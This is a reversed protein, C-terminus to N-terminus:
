SVMFAALGGMIIIFFVLAMIIDFNNIITKTTEGHAFTAPYIVKFSAYNGATRQLEVTVNQDDLVVTTNEGENLDFVENDGSKRDLINGEANNQSIEDATLEIKGDLVNSEGEELGFARETEGSSQDVMAPFFFAGAVVLLGFGFVIVALKLSM